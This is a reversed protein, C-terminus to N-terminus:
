HHHGGGCCGGGSCCGGGDEEHHHGGSSCCGGGGLALLDEETAQRVDLVKVDFVLTKGALPHNYDIMVIQDNFSKVTVQVSRGDEGQGFLTMGEKLEIGEFQDIPVEQIFDVRYEGYADEPKVVVTKSEGKQVGNLANELGAIVQSAGLIFELPEGDQSQDLIEEKGEERVLYEMAIVQKNEM